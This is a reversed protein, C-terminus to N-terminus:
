FHFITTLGFSQGVYFNTSQYTYYGNISLTSSINYSINGNFQVPHYNDNYFGRDIFVVGKKNKNLFLYPTKATAIFGYNVNLSIDIKKVPMIGIMLIASHISQDNPSFFPNYVGEIVMATDWNEVIEDLSYKSVYNSEESDSYNFGYGLRFSFVSLKLAPSVLWASATYYQNDYTPFLNLDYSANGMWGNPNNWSLLASFTTQMVKEGIAAETSLYPKREAILGLEMHKALKKYLQIAATWDYDNSPFKIFGANLKLRIKAPLFQFQLMANLWQSSYIEEGKLFVPSSLNIGGSLKTSKYLITEVEPTIIKLPQDDEFYNVDFILWNSRALNIKNKLGIAEPDSNYLVLAQNIKALSKDYDGQWLYIKALTKEIAFVYEKPLTDSLTNLQYIAKEFEGAEALKIAFDLKLDNNEPFLRLTRSYVEQSKKFRRTQHLADAYLWGAYLDDGHFSYYSTLLKCSKKYKQQANLEKAWNLTDTEQSMGNSIISQLM